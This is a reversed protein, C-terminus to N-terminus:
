SYFEGPLLIGEENFTQGAVIEIFTHDMIDYDRRQLKSIENSQSEKGKQIIRRKLQNKNHNQLNLDMRRKYWIHTKPVQPWDKHAGMMGAGDGEIVFNRTELSERTDRVIGNVNDKLKFKEEMLLDDEADKYSYPKKVKIRLQVSGKKVLFLCPKNQGQTIVKQGKRYEQSKIFTMFSRCNAKSWSKFVNTQRLFEIREEDMKEMITLFYKQFDKGAMTMLICDHLARVNCNRTANPQRIAAEGFM